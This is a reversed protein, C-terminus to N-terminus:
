HAFALGFRHLKSDHHDRVCRAPSPSDCRHLGLARRDRSQRAARDSRRRRRSWAGDAGHRRDNGSQDDLNAAFSHRAGEIGAEVPSRGQRRYRDAFTVLLIANAVAVGIAMIAGMFSQINLTTGTALLTLIVGFLVAPVAAIATLALRISQFYATLLLLIAVVAVVLGFALGRFMERMPTVQGRVDVQVGTPPAGAASIATSIKGAVRGLDEGEINATMSVLRRMNYRDLEGPTTGEKVTSVDRLLVPTQGSTKVPVTEIDTASRMLAQPIEVQVQYGIGSGPDRWYNPVVFRSSSTAAVLSRAVDDATVGTAAATERNIQVDVTPYDLSQGYQLDRLSTINALQRHLTEAYSRNDSMKPGSIVVEIPTPSGFSMVDNVIDAPEFSLRLNKVQRQVREAPLGEAIWKRTVWEQLHAPLKNRLSKKLDEIRM